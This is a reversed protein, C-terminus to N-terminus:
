SKFLAKTFLSMIEGFLWIELRINFNKFLEKHPCILGNHMLNHNADKVSATKPGSMKSDPERTLSIAPSQPINACIWAIICMGPGFITRHSTIGYNKALCFCTFSSDLSIKPSQLLSCTELAKGPSYFPLSSIPVKLKSHHSPANIAM